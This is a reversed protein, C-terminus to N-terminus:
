NQYLKCLHRMTPRGHPCNWPAHLGALNAVVRRMETDNLCKGIMISSRCARSAFMARVKSPRPVASASPALAQSAQTMQQQTLVPAGHELLSLLELADDKGFTTVRSFPVSTILVNGEGALSAADVEFGNWRFVEVHEELLHREDPTVELAIPQILRQKHIQVERFLREFNFIEDSAHQDLIFIDDTETHVALIFGLNFQGIVRMRTGFDQKSFSLRLTEEEQEDAATHVTHADGDGADGLAIPQGIQEAPLSVSGKVTGQPPLQDLSIVM